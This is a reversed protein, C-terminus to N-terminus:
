IHYLRDQRDRLGQRDAELDTSGQGMWELAVAVSLTVKAVECPRQNGEPVSRDHVGRTSDRM